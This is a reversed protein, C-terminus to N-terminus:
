HVLTWTLLAIQLAKITANIILSTEDYEMGYALLSATSCEDCSCGGGILIVRLYLLIEAVSVFFCEEM